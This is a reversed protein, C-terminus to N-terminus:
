FAIKYLPLFKLHLWTLHPICFLHRGVGAGGGSPKLCQPNQIISFALFSRARKQKFSYCCWEGICAILLFNQYERGWSLDLIIQWSGTITGPEWVAPTGLCKEPHILFTHFENHEGKERLGQSRNHHSIVPQEAEPSSMCTIPTLACAVVQDLWPSSLPFESPKCTCSPKTIHM